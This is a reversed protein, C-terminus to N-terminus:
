TEEFNYILSELDDVKGLAKSLNGHWLLAHLDQPNHRWRYKM